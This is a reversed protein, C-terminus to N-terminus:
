ALNDMCQECMIGNEYLEGCDCARLHDKCFQCVQRDGLQVLAGFSVADGCIECDVSPGWRDM